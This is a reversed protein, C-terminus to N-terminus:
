VEENEYSRDGLPLSFYSTEKTLISSSLLYFAMISVIVGFVGSIQELPHLGTFKGISLFLFQLFVFFFAVIMCNNTKLSAILIILSFIAWSIFFIGLAHDFEDQRGKYAAIIGSSPLSIFGYSIWYGGYSGFVTANFTNGNYLEFLGAIFQVAGGYFLALGLGIDFTKIGEAGANLLSYILTTIAFATLGLPAPNAIKRPEQLYIKEKVNKPSTPEM